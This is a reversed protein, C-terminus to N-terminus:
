VVCEVDVSVDVDHAGGGMIVGQVPCVDGYDRGWAVTIHETSAIQNNTPDLDIWNGNGCYASIWAHSADAGVLRPTGEPPKTRIYGSVYRAPIGLSRLCALQFHAFDQCVGSRSKLVEDLPTHVNTATPDFTFEHFIRQTLELAASFVPREATFSQIAYDRIEPVTPTRSTSYSFQLVDRPKLNTGANLHAAVQEWAPGDETWDLEREEVTVLSESTITLGLHSQEVAFHSAHNGFFDIRDTVHTPEPHVMLRFSHCTQWPLNRPRLRAINHCVPAANSYTYRTSHTVRLRNSEM